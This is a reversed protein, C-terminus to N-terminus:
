QMGGEDHEVALEHNVTEMLGRYDLSCRKQTGEMMERGPLNTSLM